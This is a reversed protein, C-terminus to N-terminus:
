LVGCRTGKVRYGTNQTVYMTGQARYGIGNLVPVVIRQWCSIGTERESAGLPFYGQTAKPIESFLLAFASRSTM